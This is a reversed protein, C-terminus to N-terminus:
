GQLSTPECTVGDLELLQEKSSSGDRSSNNPNSSSGSKSAEKDAEKKAAAMAEMKDRLQTDLGPVLVRLILTRDRIPLDSM